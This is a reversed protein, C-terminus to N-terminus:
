RKVMLATLQQFWSTVSILDISNTKGTTPFIFVRVSRFPRTMMRNLTHSLMLRKSDPSRPSSRQTRHGLTAYYIEGMYKM